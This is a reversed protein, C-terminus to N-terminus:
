PCETLITSLRHGVNMGSFIDDNDCVNNEFASLIVHTQFSHSRVCKDLKIGTKIVDRDPLQHHPPVSHQTYIPRQVWLSRFSLAKALANV